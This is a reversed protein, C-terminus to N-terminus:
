AASLIMANKSMSFSRQKNLLKIKKHQKEYVM